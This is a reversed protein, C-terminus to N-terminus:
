KTTNRLDDDVKMNGTFVVFFSTFIPFHYLVFWLLLLQTCKISQMTNHYKTYAENVNWNLWHIINLSAFIGDM